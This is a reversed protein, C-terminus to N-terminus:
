RRPDRSPSSFGDGGVEGPAVIAHVPGVHPPEVEAPADVRPDSVGMRAAQNLQSALDAMADAGIGTAAYAVVTFSAAVQPALTAFGAPNRHSVQSMADMLQHLTHVPSPVLDGSRTRAVPVYSSSGSGLPAATMGSVPLSGMPPAASVHPGVVGALATKLEVPFQQSVQHLVSFFLGPPSVWLTTASGANPDISIPREASGSSSVAAVPSADASSYIPQINMPTTTRSFPPRRPVQFLGLTM